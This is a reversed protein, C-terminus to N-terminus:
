EVDFPSKPERFYICRKFYFQELIFNVGFVRKETVFIDDYNGGPRGYLNRYDSPAKEAKAPAM